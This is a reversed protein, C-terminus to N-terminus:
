KSPLRANLVEAFNLRVVLGAPGGDREAPAREKIMLFRRGDAAVDYGRLAAVGLSSVGAFYLTRSVTVPLGPKLTNGVIQLPVATLLGTGDLYFLEGGNPAWAPRTGGATSILTRGADVDPFPRVYIEDRGSEDSQYAVWRGNPSLEPSWANAMVIESQAANGAANLDLSRVREPRPGQQILLRRGDATMTTPYQFGGSAGLQEAAGTGDAAQRYVTPGSGPPASAWIVHRGSRDWMPSMDSGDTKTMRELTRRAFDWIWLDDLTDDYVAVVARSGDPSVRATGYTRIPAGTAEEQGQRNLWVLSRPTMSEGGRDPISALTGTSSLAFEAAGNTRAIVREGLAVPEGIVQLREPDFRVASLSGAAVYVLYGPDMYRAHSGGRVLTKYQGTALELVAVQAREAQAALITFLVARDGPLFSPFVHDVEGAAQNPKTLVEPEGGRMVRVLGIEPAANAFVIQDDTGWTAGRPTGGLRQRSIPVAPGGSVPVYVIPGAASVFGVTRGDPSVFPASANESNALPRAELDDISRVMLRTNRGSDTAVSYVILSGDPSVALNGASGRYALPETSPPEIVFRAPRVLSLAAPRVGIWMAAAAVLAGAVVGLAASLSAVARSPRRAQHPSESRPSLADDLELRADSIDALRRRRDKELCRRLLTRIAAPTDDPLATWDPADKLVSAIVHSVTEGGFTQRGTLMEMLVVGYAWVDSRRDVPKGAAQEPSMYAATGLIMGQVTMAPATLTPSNLLDASGSANRASHQTKALGFDLVKVTGDPRVKINAPKLDRHIIGREHAAELADAIQRAISVAEVLPVPGQAIRDALTPGEVLEMVLASAGDVREFGFVQAIHPHNLAALVEAERQFRALREADAAMADPLVKIAVQRKLTTDTARYVEGMGGEGLKALVHYPGLHRGIMACSGALPAERVDLPM